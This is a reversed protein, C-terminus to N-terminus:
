RSEGARDCTVTELCDAISNVLVPRPCLELGSGAAVVSNEWKRLNVLIASHTIAM